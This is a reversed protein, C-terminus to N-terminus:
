SNDASAIGPTAATASGIGLGVVLMGLQGLRRANVM